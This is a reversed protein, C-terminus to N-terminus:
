RPSGDGRPFLDPPSEQCQPSSSVDFEPNSVGAELLVKSYSANFDTVNEVVSVPRPSTYVPAHQQYLLDQIIIGANTSGFSKVLTSPDALMGAFLAPHAAFFEVAASVGGRHGEIARFLDTVSAPSLAHEYTTVWNDSILEEGAGIQFLPCVTM